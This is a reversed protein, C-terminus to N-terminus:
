DLKKSFFIIKKNKFTFFYMLFYVFGGTIASIIMSILPSFIKESTNYLMFALSFSLLSYLFSPFLKKILGRESSVVSFVSAATPIFLLINSVIYSLIYGMTGLFPILIITLLLQLANGSFSYFSAKKAMSAANLVSTFIHRFTALIAGISMYPLFLAVRSDSFLSESIPKAFAALCFFAPFTFFATVTLVKELKRRVANKNGKALSASVFPVLNVSLANTFVSPLFLLPMVMGSIVGLIETAENRSFGYMVLMAPILINSVSALLTEATKSLTVPLATNLLPSFEKRISFPKIGKTSKNYSIILIILSLAEGAFIGFTLVASSLTINDKAYFVILSVVTIIRFLQEAIETIAPIKVLRDAYFSSKYINEFGTILIAPCLIYLSPLARKDGLLISLLPASFILILFILLSIILVLTLSALTATKAARKDNKAISESVNKMSAVPLGSAVIACCVSYVPSILAFLGLGGAGIFRSLFIRYAFGILRTIINAGSMFITNYTFSKAM